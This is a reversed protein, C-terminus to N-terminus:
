VVKVSLAPNAAAADRLVDLLREGYWGLYEADVVKGALTLEVPESIETLCDYLADLNAGYYVPLELAARLYNHLQPLGRMKEVDLVINRM